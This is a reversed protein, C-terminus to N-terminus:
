RVLTPGDQLQRHGGHGFLPEEIDPLSIRFGSIGACRAVSSQQRFAIVMTFRHGDYLSTANQM